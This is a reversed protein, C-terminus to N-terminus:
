AVCARCNPCYDVDGTYQQHCKHCTGVKTIDDIFILENPPVDDDEDAEEGPFLDCIHAPIYGCSDFVEKVTLNFYGNTKINFVADSGLDKTDSEDSYFWKVFVSAKILGKKKSEIIADDYGKEVYERKLDEAEQQTLYHDNVEFGGVWVTFRKEM